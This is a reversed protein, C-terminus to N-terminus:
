SFTECEFPSVNARLDFFSSPIALPRALLARRTIAYV